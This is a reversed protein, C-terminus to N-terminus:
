DFPICDFSIRNMNGGIMTIPIRVLLLAVRRTATCYRWRSIPVSCPSIRSKTMPVSIDIDDGAPIVVPLILVNGPRMACTYEKYLGTM